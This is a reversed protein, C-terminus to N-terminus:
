SEAKDFCRDTIVFQNIDPNDVTILFTPIDDTISEDDIDIVTMTLQKLHSLGITTGHITRLGHNNLRVVDGPKFTM